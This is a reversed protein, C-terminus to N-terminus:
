GEAKFFLASMPPLAIQISDPRGHWPEGTATVGGMNGWGSGGYAESDSNLIERWFGGRTVGIRYDPRPVPTLNFVCV